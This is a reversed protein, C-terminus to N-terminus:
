KRIGVVCELAYQFFGDKESKSISEGFDPGVTFDFVDGLYYGDFGNHDAGFNCLIYDNTEIYTKVEYSDQLNSPAGTYIVSKTRTVSRSRRLLGHALWAHGGSYIVKTGFMKKYTIKHSAGGLLVSYGNMLESVVENKSYSKNTGGIKYGFNKLTRPVDALYALSVDVGYQMDTNEELGLQQMLRAIDYTNRGAIMDDWHFFYSDYSSPYKYISMLQACATVVCGTKTKNGNDTPCFYNYPDKQGWHVKCYGGVPNFFENKYNGYTYYVDTYATTGQNDKDDHSPKNIIPMSRLKCLFIALGPDDIVENTDINGGDTIALLSPMDETASMIAFGGNDEFNFVHIETTDSVGTSKSISPRESKLTFGDAIKKSAFGGKGSKSLSSFDALISELDKRAEELSIYGDPAVNEM